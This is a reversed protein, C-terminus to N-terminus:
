LYKRFSQLRKVILTAYSGRPLDFHLRLKRRGSHREDDEM